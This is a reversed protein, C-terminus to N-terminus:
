AKEGLNDTEATRSATSLIDDYLHRYGASGTEANLRELRENIALKMRYAIIFDLDFTSLSSLREIANWRERELNLEAQYPDDIAFCSAAVRGAEDSRKSSRVFEEESRNFRRARLRALENRFTREWALFSALFGSRLTEPVKDSNLYGIAAVTEACDASSLNRRCLALFEEESMPPTAGFLLGPLTASLYWYHSV